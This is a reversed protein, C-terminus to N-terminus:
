AAGDRCRGCARGCERWVPVDALGAPPADWVEGFRLACMEEEALMGCGISASPCGDEACPWPGNETCSAEEVKPKPPRRKPGREDAYRTLSAHYRRLSRALEAESITGDRDADHFALANGVAAEFLESGMAALDESSVARAHHDGGTWAGRRAWKATPAAKLYARLEDLSAAGDGDADIAKMLAAADAAAAATAAPAPQPRVSGGDRLTAWSSWRQLPCREEHMLHSMAFRPYFTSLYRTAHPAAFQFTTAVTCEGPPNDDPHVYTEHMYGPPFVFAEGARVVFEYEPRWRGTPYINGDHTDFAESANDIAPLMMLRWRKAGSLQISITMECYADAHAMTGGGALSFWFEFSEFSEWANVKSGALFYPPAWLQQVARKTAMPEQDKVHWIYPGSLAGYEGMMHQSMDKRPRAPRATTAWLTNSLPMKNDHEVDDWFVQWEAGTNAKDYYEARMTGNPWREHYFECARGVLPLGRGADEVVFPTGHRVLEDFAAPSVERVRVIQQATPPSEGEVYDHLASFYQQVTPEHLDSEDAACSEDASAAALLLAVATGSRKTM